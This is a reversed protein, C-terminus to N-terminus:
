PPKADARKRPCSFVEPPAHDVRTINIARKRKVTTFNRLRGKRRASFISLSSSVNKHRFNLVVMCKPILNEDTFLLKGNMCPGQTLLEHCENKEPHFVKGPPCSKLKKCEGLRRSARFNIKLFFFIMFDYNNVYSVRAYSV